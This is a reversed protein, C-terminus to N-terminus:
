DLATFDGFRKGLRFTQLALAGRSHPEPLAGIRRQVGTSAAAPPAPPHPPPATAHDGAPAPPTM